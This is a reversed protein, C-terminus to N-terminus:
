IDIDVKIPDISSDKWLNLGELEVYVGTCTLSVHLRISINCFIILSYEVTLSNLWISICMNKKQITESGWVTFQDGPCTLFSSLGSVLFCTLCSCWWLWWTKTIVVPFASVPFWSKCSFNSFYTINNVFTTLSTKKMKLPVNM